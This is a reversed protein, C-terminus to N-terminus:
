WRTTLSSPARRSRWRTARAWKSRARPRTGTAWGRGGIDRNGMASVDDISGKKVGPMVGNPGARLRTRVRGSRRDQAAQVEEPTPQNDKADKDDKSKKDKKGNDKANDYAPPNTQTAPPTNGPTSQTGPASQAAPTGECGDDSSACEDRGHCDRDHAQFHRLRRRALRRHLILPRLLQLLRPRARPRRRTRRLRHQSTQQAQLTVDGDGASRAPFRPEPFGCLVGGRPSAPLWPPLKPRQNSRVIELAAWAGFFASGRREPRTESWRMARQICM